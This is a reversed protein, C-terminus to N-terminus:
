SFSLADPMRSGADSNWVTTSIPCASSSGDDDEAEEDDERQQEERDAEPQAKILRLAALLSTEISRVTVSFPSSGCTLRSISGFLALLFGRLASPNSHIDGFFQRLHEAFGPEVPTQRPKRTVVPIANRIPSDGAARRNREGRRGHQAPQADAADGRKRGSIYTFLFRLM